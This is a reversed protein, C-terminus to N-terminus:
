HRRLRQRLLELYRENDLPAQHRQAEWIVQGLAEIIEHIATHENSKAVLQKYIDCIGKPSDVQLQEYIALHMSLHLFPNMQGQEVSFDLHQSDKNELLAHYEPHKEIITVAMDEIPSLVQRKQRKHWANIFFERVQDRSPNFLAM